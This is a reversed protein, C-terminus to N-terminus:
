VLSRKKLMPKIIYEVDVVKPSPKKPLRPPGIDEADEDLPPVDYPLPPTPPYPEKTM